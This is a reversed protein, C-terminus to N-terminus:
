SKKAKERRRLESEIAKRIVTLRDEGDLRVADLRDTTGAKLPVRLSEHWLKTRGMAHRTGSALEGTLNTDM